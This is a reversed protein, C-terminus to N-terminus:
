LRIKMEPDGYDFLVIRGNLIGANEGKDNDINSYPICDLEEDTLRRDLPSAKRMVIMLGFPLSFIVPALTHSQTATYRHTELLNNLMGRVFSQQTEPKPFKMVFRKGVFVIRNMGSCMKV